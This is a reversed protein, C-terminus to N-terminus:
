RDTQQFLTALVNQLRDHIHSLESTPQSAPCATWGRM